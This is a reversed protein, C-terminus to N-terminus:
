PWLPFTVPNEEAPFGVEEFLEEWAEDDVLCLVEDSHLVADRAFLIWGELDLLAM